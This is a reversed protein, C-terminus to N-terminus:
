CRDWATGMHTPRGAAEFAALTRDLAVRFVATKPHQRAASIAFDQFLVLGGPVVARALRRVVAAPDPLHM